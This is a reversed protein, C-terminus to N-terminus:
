SLRTITYCQVVSLGVLSNNPLPTSDPRSWEPLVGPCFCDVRCVLEGLMGEEVSVVDADVVLKLVPDTVPLMSVASGTCAIFVASPSYAVCQPPGSAPVELPEVM